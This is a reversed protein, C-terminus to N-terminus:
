RSRALLLQLAPLDVTRGEEEETPPLPIPFTEGTVTGYCTVRDGAAFILDEDTVFIMEDTWQDKSETVALRLYHQGGGASVNTVVGSFSVLRGAYKAPNGSLNEYSLRKVQDDLYDAYDADRWYREFSYTLTRDPYDAKHVTLTVTRPGTAEPELKISFSGDGARRETTTEGETVTVTAGALTTGELRPQADWVEGEPTSSLNVPIQDFDCTLRTTLRTTEFGDLASELYM